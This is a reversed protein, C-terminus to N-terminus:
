GHTEELKSLAGNAADLFARATEADPCDFVLALSVGRRSYGVFGEEIRTVGFVPSLGQKEPLFAEQFHALARRAAGADAYRVLIVRARRGTAGAGHREYEATVAEDSRGLDLVNRNSVFFQSNLVLHSRFYCVRDARVRHGPGIEAPLARALAPPPPTARGAVIARGIALVARKSAETEREALVRAYLDDSWIRLLGAGYLARAGPIAGDNGGGASSEGLSVPDGGWDGSLLGFADDSTEMRYLEVVITGEDTSAYEHVELGRFRYALYLEGAGDMYDFISKADVIRPAPDLKFGEITAPLSMPPNADPSASPPLLSLAGLLLVVVVM